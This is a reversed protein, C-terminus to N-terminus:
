HFQIRISTECRFSFIGDFLIYDVMEQFELMCVCASNFRTFILFMKPHNIKRCMFHFFYQTFTPNMRKLECKWCSFNKKLFCFHVTSFDLGNATKLQELNWVFMEWSLLFIVRIERRWGVSNEEQILYLDKAMWELLEICHIADNAIQAYTTSFWHKMKLHMEIGIVDYVYHTLVVYHKNIVIQTDTKMCSSNKNKAVQNQDSENQNINYLTEQFLIPHGFSLALRLWFYWCFCCVACCFM